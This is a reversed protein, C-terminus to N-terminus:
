QCNRLCIAFIDIIGDLVLGATVGTLTSKTDGGIGWGGVGCIVAIFINAVVFAIKCTRSNAKIQDADLAHTSLTNIKTKPSVNLVVNQSLPLSSPSGVAPTAGSM